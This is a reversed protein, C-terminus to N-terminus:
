PELKLYDVRADLGTAAASKNVLTFTVTHAGESLEVRGLVLEKSRQAAPAYGDFRAGLPRGDIAPQVAGHDPGIGMRAVVSYTGSAPVDFRLTLRTGKNANTLQVGANGSFAGGIDQRAAFAVGPQREGPAAFSELAPLLDEAELYVSQLADPAVVAPASEGDHWALVPGAAVASAMVAALALLRSHRRM